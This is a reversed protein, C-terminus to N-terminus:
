FYLGIIAERVHILMLITSDQLQLLILGYVILINLDDYLETTFCYVLEAVLHNWISHFAM